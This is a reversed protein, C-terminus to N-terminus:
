FGVRQIHYLADDPHDTRGSWDLEFVREDEGDEAVRFGGTLYFDRTMANKPTAAYRAWIRQAGREGLDRVVIRLLANEVDRGFARCSILFTDIESSVGDPRGKTLVLGIIGYDTFRDEMRMTYVGGDRLFTEIEEVGYRRTTLNFQNTRQTLQSVRQIAASDQRTVTLRIDLSRIFDRLDTSERRLRERQANAKYSAIRKRDDETVWLRGVNKISTIFSFIDLPHEPFREVQVEPLLTAVLDCEVASDDIFIMSDLGINLEAALEKLNAVKDRWNIRFAAFDDMKLVMDPSGEIFAVADEENNKSNLALLFGKTSLVKLFLQFERYATGPYTTGVLVGEPGDEGLVGGWLTNDLDLVLCKRPANFLAAPIEAFRRALVPLFDVAFPTGSMQYMREDYAQRVGFHSVADDLDFIHVRPSPGWRNVIELNISRRQQLWSSRDQGSLPMLYEWREPPALNSVILQGGWGDSLAAILSELRAVIRAELDPPPSMRSDGALHSGHMFLWLIDLNQSKVEDPDMAYAEFVDFDGVWFRALLGHRLMAAFLAPLWPEVTVDRLLGIRVTRYNEVEAPFEEVMRYAYNVVAFPPDGEEVTARFRDLYEAWRGSGALQALEADMM